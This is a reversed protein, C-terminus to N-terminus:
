YPSIELALKQRFAQEFLDAKVQGGYLEVSLDDHGRLQIKFRSNGRSCNIEAVASSRRRDLGDALRLIGGLKHVLRRDPDSLRNLNDHGTKPLAKRHYRALNAIIETERPTFDFLKAHRILHYSHKHHKAYSIFYGVDHLIAAAELLMRGRKDLEPDSGLADFIATALRRVQDGHAEDVHCSRAFAKVSSLWDRQEGALAWLGHKQLSRIILGERIGGANIKLLNTGFYRMLADVAAVGAFIIDAREANLGPIARREKNSTRELLALQHVVESHLVDYGQVSDYQEKRRAMVMSGINTITGGSGILCHASFATDGLSKRITKRLHKRLRAMDDKSLPDGRLFRETLFVAGLELSRIEEIHSGIAAIIEISGGGIDVLVYRTNAMDFHHLASQTALEAEERGEIVSIPIGTEAEMAAVFEAGNAAKRVASTAVAEIFGGGLGDNIKRMRLLAERAREWAAPSIRGTESLGEGLRVQAKEDDLVRFGTKEDVEVTICRISNTGIDIAALRQQIM